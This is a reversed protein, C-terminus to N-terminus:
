GLTLGRRAVVAMLKSKDRKRIPKAAQALLEENTLSLASKTGKRGGLKFKVQVVLSKAGKKPNQKRTKAM